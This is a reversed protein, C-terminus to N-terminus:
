HSFSLVVHSTNDPSTVPLLSQLKTSLEPPLPNCVAQLWPQAIDDPAYEELM